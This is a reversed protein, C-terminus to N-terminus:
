QPVEPRWNPRPPPPPGAWGAEVPSPVADLLRALQWTMIASALRRNAEVAECWAELLPRQGSCDPGASSGRAIEWMQPYLSDSWHSAPVSLADPDPLAALVQGTLVDQRDTLMAQCSVRDEQLDCDQIGAGGCVLIDRQSLLRIDPAEPGPNRTLAREFRGMAEAICTEFDPRTQASASGALLLLCACVVRRM